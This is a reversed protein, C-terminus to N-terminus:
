EAVPGDEPMYAVMKITDIGAATIASLVPQVHDYYIAADARLLVQLQPNRAQEQRLHETVSALNDMGMTMAGIRVEKASGDFLLPNDSRHQRDFTQPVVSVIVRNSEEMPRTRPEELSPVIMPVAESSVINSVLMFFVILLFVVDILPTINMKPTAPGRKFVQSPM